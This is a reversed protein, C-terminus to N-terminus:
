GGPLEGIVNTAGSTEIATKFQKVITPDIIRMSEVTLVIVTGDKFTITVSEIENNM